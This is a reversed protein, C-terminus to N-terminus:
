KYCEMKLQMGDKFGEKYYKENFYANRYNNNELYEDITEILKVKENKNLPINNIIDLIEKYKENLDIKEKKFFEKDKDTIEAIDNERTEFIKNLMAEKEIDSSEYFNNINVM